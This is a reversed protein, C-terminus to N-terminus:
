SKSLSLIFKEEFPVQKAEKKKKEEFSNEEHPGIPRSVNPRPRISHRM